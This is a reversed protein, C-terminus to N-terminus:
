GLNCILLRVNNDNSEHGFNLFPFLSILFQYLSAILRNKILARTYIYSQADLM